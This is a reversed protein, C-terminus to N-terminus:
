SNWSDSPTVYVNPDIKLLTTLGRKPCYARSAPSQVPSEPSAPLDPPVMTRRDPLTSTIASNQVVVADASTVKFCFDPAFIAIPPLASPVVVCYMLVARIRTSSATVPVGVDVMM